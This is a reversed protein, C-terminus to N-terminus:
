TNKKYKDTLQAVPQSSIQHEAQDLFFFFFIGHCVVQRKQVNHPLYRGLAVAFSNWIITWVM